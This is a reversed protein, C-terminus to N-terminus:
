ANDEKELSSVPNEPYKADWADCLTKWANEILDGIDRRGRRIGGSSIVVADFPLMLMLHM